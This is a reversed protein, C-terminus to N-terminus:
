VATTANVVTDDATVAVQWPLMKMVSRYRRNGEQTGQGSSVLRRGGRM